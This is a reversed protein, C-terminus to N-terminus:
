FIIVEEATGIEVVEVRFKEKIRKLYNILKDIIHLNSVVIL